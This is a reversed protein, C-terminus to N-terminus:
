SLFGSFIRPFQSKHLLNRQTIRLEKGYDDDDLQHQREPVSTSNYGEIGGDLGYAELTLTGNKPTPSASGAADVFHVTVSFQSSRWLDFPVSVSRSYEYVHVAVVDRQLYGNVYAKLYYDGPQWDPFTTLMTRHSM